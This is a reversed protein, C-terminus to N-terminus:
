FFFFFFWNILKKTQRFGLNLSPSNLPFLSTFKSTQSVGALDSNTATITGGDVKPNQLTACPKHGAPNEPAQVQWQPQTTEEALELGTDALITKDHVTLDSCCKNDDYSQAWRLFIPESFPSRESSLLFSDPLINKWPTKNKKKSCTFLMCIHQWDAQKSAQYSM